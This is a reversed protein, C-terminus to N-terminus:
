AHMCLELKGAQRNVWNKKLIKAKNALPKLQSFNDSFLLLSLKSIFNFNEITWNLFSAFLINVTNFLHKAEFVEPMNKWALEKIKYCNSISLEFEYAVSYDLRVGM